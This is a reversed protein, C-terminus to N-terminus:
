KNKKCARVPNKKTITKDKNIVQRMISINCLLVFLQEIVIMQTEKMM